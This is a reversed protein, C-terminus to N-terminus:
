EIDEDMGWLVIIDLDRHRYTVKNGLEPSESKKRMTGIRGCGDM